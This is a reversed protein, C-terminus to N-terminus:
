WKGDAGSRSRGFLLWWGMSSHHHHNSHPTCLLTPNSGFVFLYCWSCMHPCAMPFNVQSTAPDWDRSLELWCWGYRSSYSLSSMFDQLSSGPTMQSGLLNMATYLAQLCCTIYGHHSACGIAVLKEYMERLVTLLDEFPTWFLWTGIIVHHSKQTPILRPASPLVWSHKPAQSCPALRWLVGSHEWALGTKIVSHSVKSINWLSHTFLFQSSRTMDYVVQGECALKTEGSAYLFYCCSSFWSFLSFPYSNCAYRSEKWPASGANVAPLKQHKTAFM